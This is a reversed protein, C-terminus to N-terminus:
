FVKKSDFKPLSVLYLESIAFMGKSINKYKTYDELPLSIEKIMM